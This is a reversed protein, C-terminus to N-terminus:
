KSLFTTYLEIDMLPCSCAPPFFHLHLRLLVWLLRSYLTANVIHLPINGSLSFQKHTKALLNRFREEQYQKTSTNVINVVNDLIM